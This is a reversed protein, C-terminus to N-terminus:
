SSGVSVCSFRPRDLDSKQPWSARSGLYLALQDASFDRQAYEEAGLFFTLKKSRNFQRGPIMVPGGITFGPYIQRDQPSPEGAYKAIWDVSNMQNTRGYAYLMGHYASGGSRGIANIVVPGHANDATFSGTQVKVEAVQDYNVNQIAIGYSGQDTVDMGDTLLSTSNTQTGNAAYSGIAGTFAVLSPDYASNSFSSSNTVISMGPLIKLLETVDRGEIALHKIDDSSILSSTEGSDTAIQGGVNATVVVSATSGIALKINRFSRQDGPNLHIGTYEITQFDQASITLQYDGTLLGSFSFVGVENSQTERVENTAVYKLQIKAKPIAAGTPDHVVGDLTPTNQARAALPLCFAMVGFLVFALFLPFRKDGNRDQMQPCSVRQCM